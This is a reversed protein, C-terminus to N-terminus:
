LVTAEGGACPATPKASRAVYLAAYHVKSLSHPLRRLAAYEDLPVEGHPENPSREAFRPLSCIRHIWLVKATHTVWAPSAHETTAHERNVQDRKM